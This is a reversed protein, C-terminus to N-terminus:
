FGHYHTVKVVTLTPCQERLWKINFMADEGEGSIGILAKFKSRLGFSVDDNSPWRAARSGEPQKMSQQSAHHELWPRNSHHVWNCAIWEMEKRGIAEDLEPVILRELSHRLPALHELGTELTLKLCGWERKGFMYNRLGEIRLEKLQTLRGIAKCVKVQTNIDKTSDQRAKKRPGETIMYQVRRKLTELTEDEGEHEDKNGADERDAGFDGKDREFGNRWGHGNDWHWRARKPIVVFIELVELGRCIWDEEILSEADLPVDRARFEKLHPLLYLAMYACEHLHEMGNINLRTLAHLRNRPLYNVSPGILTMFAKSNFATVSGWISWSELQPGYKEMMEIWHETTLQYFMGFEIERLKPCRQFMYRVFGDDEKEIRNISPKESYHHNEALNDLFGISANDPLVPHRDFSVCLKELDPCRTLLPLISNGFHYDGDFDEDDEDDEVFSDNDDLKVPGFNFFSLSRIPLKDSAGNSAYLWTWYAISGQHYDRLVLEELGFGHGGGSSNNENKSETEDKISEDMLAGQTSRKQGEQLEQDQELRKQRKKNADFLYSLFGMSSEGFDTDITLKKLKGGVARKLVLDTFFKEQFIDNQHWDIEQIEPNQSLIAGALRYLQSVDLPAEESKIAFHNLNKLGAVQPHLTDAFVCKMLRYSAQTTLTLSRIYRCNEIFGQDKKNDNTDAAPIYYALRAFLYLDISFTQWALTRGHTYWFRSVQLCLLLTHQDLFSFVKHLIEPLGMAITKSSPRSVDRSIEPQDKDTHEIVSLTPCQERLWKIADDVRGSVGILAKLKSRTDFSADDDPRVGAATNREPQGMSTQSPHHQELWPSNHHHVWNCAIWEVEKRGTLGDDLGSVILKELSHRLPALHELGTELTLELCGFERKGFMHFRGGEIRLERLQTLRGLAKCVKVQTNIYKISDQRAKMRPKETSLYEAHQKLARLTEDEDTDEHSADDRDTETDSQSREFGNWWGFGDYWQWRLRKPIAVFIELVELGRCIWEEEILLKADLPVDRARFEKLHPLLFIAMFACDHLHGMGNINLRTLGHLRDRALHSVPSGILTMFATSNFAIVNVWISLSELQPGFREMMETWHETTLQYCMGFGIERLKPCREFMYEGFLDDEEGVKNTSPDRSYHSNKALNDLFGISSNDPLVPHRDFSVCLKELEPCKNLMPLICNGIGYDRGEDDEDITDDDLFRGARTLPEFNIFRLSRIPLNHPIAIEARRFVRDISIKKLKGGVVRKLMLNAFTNDDDFWGDQQWEIEQIGPNQSLIAGTWGFSESANEGYVFQKLQVTLHNLNKLGAVRPHLANPLKFKRPSRSPRTLTLSRIHYCNEIFDQLRDNYEVQEKRKDKDTDVALHIDCAIRLFLHVNISFTQWALTRGHTYWFRSVQLCVMLTHQDLLSFVNHLIEPLGMAITKSPPRSVVRSIETQEKDTHEM